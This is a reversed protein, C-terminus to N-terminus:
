RCKEVIRSLLGVFKRRRIDAAQQIFRQHQHFLLRFYAGLVVNYAGKVSLFQTRAHVGVFDLLDEPIKTVVRQPCHGIASGQGHLQFFARDPKADVKLVATNAHVWFSPGLDKLRQLRTELPAGPQPQGNNILNHLRVTPFDAHDRLFVAASLKNDLQRSNPSAHHLSGFSCDSFCVCALQRMNENDVVFFGNTFQQLNGKALFTVAEVSHAVEVRYGEKRFTIELLECISKEDDVVLIHPMERATTERIAAKTGQM